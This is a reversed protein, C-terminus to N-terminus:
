PHCVTEHRLNRHFIGHSLEPISHKKIRHRVRDAPVFQKIARSQKVMDFIKQTGEHSLGAISACISFGEGGFFRLADMRHQKTYLDELSQLIVAESLKKTWAM